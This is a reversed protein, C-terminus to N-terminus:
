VHARGIEPSSIRVGSSIVAMTAATFVLGLVIATGFPLLLPYLEKELTFTPIPFIRLVRVLASSLIVSVFLSLFAPFVAAAKERQRLLLESAIADGVWFFLALLPVAWLFLKATLEKGATFLLPVEAPLSSYALLLAFTGIAIALASVGFSGLIFPAEGIKPPM